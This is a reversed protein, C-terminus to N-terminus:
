ISVASPMPDSVSVRNDWTLQAHAASAQAVSNIRWHKALFAQSGGAKLGCGVENFMGMVRLQPQVLGWDEEYWCSSWGDRGADVVEKIGAANDSLTGFPVDIPM